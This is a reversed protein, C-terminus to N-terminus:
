CRLKRGQPPDKIASFGIDHLKSLVPIAHYVYGFNLTPVVKRLPKNWFRLTVCLGKIKLDQYGPM